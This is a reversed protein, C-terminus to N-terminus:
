SQNFLLVPFIESMMHAAANETETENGKKEKRGNRRKKETEKRKGNKGGDL